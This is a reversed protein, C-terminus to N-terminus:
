VRWAARATTLPVFELGAGGPGAAHDGACVALGERGGTEILLLDGRQAFRASIPTLRGWDDVARELTRGGLVRVAGLATRYDLAAALEERPALDERACELWGVAFTLCVLTGWAFPTDRYRELYVELLLPWDPRRLGSGNLKHTV